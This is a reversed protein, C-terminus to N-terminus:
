ALLFRSSAEHVAAAIFDSVVKIRRLSRSSEHFSLWYARRIYIDPLVRVLSPTDRAIFAHLIGIGAGAKVAEVQGLASSIELGAQWDRAIDASYNLSPSIVLDDVYGVLRHSALDMTTVPTPSDKLYTESAYLALDYDMLKRAILRGPGPMDVTIVIDAERRSLSFSRPVPVLQIKLDPHRTTLRSLTPALFSVGFGDPAGIRVTGAIAVDENGLASMASLMETEMREANVFLQEGAETLECGTTRRNFLRTNLAMELASVRRAVTAHNISLRRGAALFQGSRAVALFIRVDNWDM